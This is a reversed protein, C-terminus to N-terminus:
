WDNNSIEYMGNSQKETESDCEFFEDENESDAMSPSRHGGGLSRELDHHEQALVRLSAQLYRVKEQEQKLQLKRIQHLFFFYIM